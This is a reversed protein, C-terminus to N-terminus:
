GTVMRKTNEIIQRLDEIEGVLRAVERSWKCTFICAGGYIQGPTPVTQSTSSYGAAVALM